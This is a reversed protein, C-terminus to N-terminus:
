LVSNTELLQGSISVKDRLIKEYSWADSSHFPLFTPPLSSQICNFAENVINATVMEM